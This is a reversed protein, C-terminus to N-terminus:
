FSATKNPGVLASFPFPFSSLNNTHSHLSLPLLLALLLRDLHVDFLHRSFKRDRRMPCANGSPPTEGSRWTKPRPLLKGEVAAAEPRCTSQFLEKLSRKLSNLLAFLVFLM